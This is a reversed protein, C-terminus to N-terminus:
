FQLEGVPAWFLKKFELVQDNKVKIGVKKWLEEM